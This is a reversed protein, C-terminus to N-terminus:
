LVQFIYIFYFRPLSFDAFSLSFLSPGKTFAGTVASQMASDLRITLASAFLVPTTNDCFAPNGISVVSGPLLHPLLSPESRIFLNIWQHIRYKITDKPSSQSYQFNLGSQLFYTVPLNEKSSISQTKGSETETEAELGGHHSGRQRTMSEEWWSAGGGRLSWRHLLGVM